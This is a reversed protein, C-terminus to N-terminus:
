RAVKGMKTVAITTGQQCISMEVPTGTVSVRDGNAFGPPVSTLTFVKQTRDERLAQCEVGEILTGTVTITPPVEM